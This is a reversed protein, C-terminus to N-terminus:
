ELSMTVRNRTVIKLAIGLEYSLLEVKEVIIECIVTNKENL